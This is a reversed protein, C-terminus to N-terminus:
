GNQNEPQKKDPKDSNLKAAIRQQLDQSPEYRKKRNSKGNKSKNIYNDELIKIFNTPSMIWDFTARWNSENDGNLFNSESVKQFVNGIENYSYEKARAKIVSKRAPTIKKVQPLDPCMLHFTNVVQNVNKEFKNKNEKEIVNEIVNENETIQLRNTSNKYSKNKNKQRDKRKSVAESRIESIQNEKEFRRSHFETFREYQTIGCIDYDKLEQIIDNVKEPSCRWLNQLGKTPIKYISQKGNTFMKFIIRLWAAESELSLVNCDKEWDGIYLPINPLNKKTM